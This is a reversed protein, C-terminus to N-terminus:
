KIYIFSPSVDLEANKGLYGKTSRLFLGEYDTSTIGMQFSCVWVPCLHYRFSVYPYPDRKNEGNKAVRM